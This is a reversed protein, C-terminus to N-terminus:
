EKTNQSQDRVRSRSDCPKSNKLSCDCLKKGKSNPIMLTEGLNLLHKIPTGGIIDKNENYILCWYKPAKSGYYKKALKGLTDGSQVTHTISPKGQNPLKKSICSSLQIRNFKLFSDLAKSPIAEGMTTGHRRKIVGVVCGENIIPGGSEEREVTPQLILNHHKGKRVSLFRRLFWEEALPHGISYFKGQSNSAFSKISLCVFEEKKFSINEKTIDVLLIALDKEYDHRWVKAKYEQGPLSNFEIFVNDSIKSDTKGSITVVHRATVIYIMKGKKDVIFGSGRFNNQVGVRVVGLKAIEERVPNNSCHLEEVGFVSPTYTVVLLFLFM